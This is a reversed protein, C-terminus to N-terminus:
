QLLHPLAEKLLQSQYLPKLLKYLLIFVNDDWILAKLRDEKKNCFLFISKSFPDLNFQQTVIAALGDAAKRFDTPGCALYSEDAVLIDKLM